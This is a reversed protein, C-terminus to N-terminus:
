SLMPLALCGGFKGRGGERGFWRVLLSLFQLSIVEGRRGSRTEKLDKKERKGKKRERERMAADMKKLDLIIGIKRRNLRREEPAGKENEM